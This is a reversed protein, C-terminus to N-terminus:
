QLKEVKIVAYGMKTLQKIAWALQSCIGGCHKTQSWSYDKVHSNRYIPQGCIECPKVERKM